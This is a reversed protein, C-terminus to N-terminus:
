GRHCSLHRSDVRAPPRRGRTRADVRGPVEREPSVPDIARSADRLALDPDETAPGRPPPRPVDAEPLILYRASRLPADFCAEKAVRHFAQAAGSAEVGGHQHANVHRGAVVSDFRNEVSDGYRQSRGSRTMSATDPAVLHSTAALVFRVVSTTREPGLHGARISRWRRDSRDQGGPLIAPCSVSSTQGAPPM